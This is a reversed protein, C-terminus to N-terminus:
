QLMKTVAAGSLDKKLTRHHASKRDDGEVSGESIVDRADIYPCINRRSGPLNKSIQGEHDKSKEISNFVQKLTRLFGLWALPADNAPSMSSKM